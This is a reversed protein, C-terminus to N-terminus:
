AANPREIELSEKMNVSSFYLFAYFPAESTEAFSVRHTSHGIHLLVSEYRPDQSAPVRTFTALLHAVLEESSNVVYGSNLLLDTM